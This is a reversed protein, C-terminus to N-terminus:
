LYLKISVCDRGNVNMEDTAAKTCLLLTSYGHGLGHPRCLQFYTSDQGICFFLTTIGARSWGVYACFPSPCFKHPVFYFPALGRLIPGTEHKRAPVKSAVYHRPKRMEQGMVEVGGCVRVTATAEPLM